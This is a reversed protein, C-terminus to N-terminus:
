RSAQSRWELDTLVVDMSIKARCRWLIDRAELENGDHDYIHRYFDVCRLLRRTATLRALVHGIAGLPRFKLNCPHLSLHLTPRHQRLYDAMSPVLAYEGGEIDMKIFNCDSINFQQIIDSFSLSKVVWHTKRNSLLVSSTSDGGESRSGLRVQGTTPAACANLLYINPYSAKNLGINTELESYALPDPELGYAAKAIQGGYLLTPGIWSGIDIFAHQADLFRDFIAFTEPEWVGAAVDHWFQSHKAPSVQFSKNRIQILM